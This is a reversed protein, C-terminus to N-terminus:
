IISLLLSMKQSLFTQFFLSKFEKFSENENLTLM